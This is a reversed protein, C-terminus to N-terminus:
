INLILKTENKSENYGIEVWLNKDPLYAWAEEKGQNLLKQLDKIGSNLDKEIIYRIKNKDNILLAGIEVEPRNSNYEQKCGLLGVLGLAILKKM